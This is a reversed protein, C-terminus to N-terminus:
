TKKGKKMKSIIRGGLPVVWVLSVLCVLMGCLFAIVLNEIM